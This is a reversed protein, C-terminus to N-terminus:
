LHIYCRGCAEHWGKERSPGHRLADFTWAGGCITVPFTVVWLIKYAKTGRETVEQGSESCRHIVLGLLILCKSRFSNAGLSCYVWNDRGECPVSPLPGQVTPTPRDAQYAAAARQTRELTSVM